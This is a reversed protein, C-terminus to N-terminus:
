SRLLAAPQSCQRHQVEVVGRRDRPRTRLSHEGGHRLAVDGIAVPPTDTRVDGRFSWNLEGTQANLSHLGGQDDIALLSDGALAAGIGSEWGTDFPYYQSAVWLEAGSAADLAHINRGGLSM